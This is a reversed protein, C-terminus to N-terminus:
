CVCTKQRLELRCSEFWHGRSSSELVGPGVLAGPAWCTARDAIL